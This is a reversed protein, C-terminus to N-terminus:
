GAKVKSEDAVTFKLGTIDWATAVDTATGTVKLYLEDKDSNTTIAISANNSGWLKSVAGNTTWEYGDPLILKVSENHIDLSGLVDEKVRLDFTFVNNSEDAGSVSLTLSGSSSVKAVTVTGSPFGSGAPGDFTVVCEGTKDEEVDVDKLYVYFIFDDTPSQDATATIKVEDNADLVTVQINAALLGNADGAANVTAPVYVANGAPVTDVATASFASGFDWGDPIKFIVSDGSSIAGAPVVVKITGLKQADADAVVPTTLATITGGALAPAAMPLLLTALMALTLLISVLKRSRKM